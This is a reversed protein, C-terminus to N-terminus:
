RAQHAEIFTTLATLFEPRGVANMHTAGPILVLKADRLLRVLGELETKVPDRQGVIALVPLRVQRLKGPAPDLRVNGRIVAALALVDNSRLLMRNIADVQEKTPPEDRPMLSVILPELGKGEELSEAVLNAFRLRTRSNEAGSWATAGLTVTRVREPYDSLFVSAIRGGMSYGVIHAKPINLHDLLRAIDSVMNVGYMGPDHPKDSLGHGRNDLAIVQYRNALGKIIGPNRWNLAIDSAFGHILVVPEGNGEVVYHIRVGGSDFFFDAAEMQVAGLLLLLTGAVLITKDLAFEPYRKM